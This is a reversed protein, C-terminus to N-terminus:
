EDDNVGVRGVLSTEVAGHDAWLVHSGLDRPESKRSVNQFDFSGVVGTQLEVNVRDPRTGLPTAAPKWGPKWGATSPPMKGGPFRLSLELALSSMVCRVAQGGAGRGNRSSHEWRQCQTSM